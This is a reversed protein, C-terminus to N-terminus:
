IQSVIWAVFVATGIDILLAQFSDIPFRTISYNLWILAKTESKGELEIQSLRDLMMNRYGLPNKPDVRRATRRLRKYTLARFQRIQHKKKSM